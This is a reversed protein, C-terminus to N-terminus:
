ADCAVLGRHNHVVGLRRPPSTLRRCCQQHVAKSVEGSLRGRPAGPIATGQGALSLHDMLTTLPINADPRRSPAVKSTGVGGGACLWVIEDCGADIAVCDRAGAVTSTTPGESETPASTAPATRSRSADSVEPPGIQTMWCRSMSSFRRRAPNSLFVGILSASRRCSALKMRASRNTDRLMSCLAPTRRTLADTAPLVSAAACSRERFM